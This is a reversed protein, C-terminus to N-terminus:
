HECHAMEASKLRILERLPADLGGETWMARGMEKYAAWFSPMRAMFKSMGDDSLKPM